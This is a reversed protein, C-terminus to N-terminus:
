THGTMRLLIDSMKLYLKVTLDHNFPCYLIFHMENEVGDLDCSHYKRDEEPASLYCGTEVVLPLVGSTLHLLIYYFIVVGVSKM